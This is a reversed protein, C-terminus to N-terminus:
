ENITTGRKECFGPVNFSMQGDRGRDTWRDCFVKVQSMDESTNIFRRIISCQYKAHTIRWERHCAREKPVMHYHHPIPQIEYDIMTQFRNICEIRNQRNYDTWVYESFLASKLGQFTIWPSITKVWDRYKNMHIPDYNTKGIYSLTFGITSLFLKSDSVINEKYM